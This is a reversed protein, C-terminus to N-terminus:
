GAAGVLEPEPVTGADAPSGTAAADPEPDTAAEPVRRGTLRGWLRRLLGPRRPAAEPTAETVVAEPTAEDTPSDAPADASSEAPIDTPSDAPADAPSGAEDAGPAVWRRGTLWLWFRRLLGPRRPAAGETDATADGGAAPEATGAAAADRASTERAAADAAILAADLIPLSATDVLDVVSDDSGLGNPVYDDAAWDNEWRQDDLLYRFRWRAGPPLTIDARFSGDGQRLLPHAQPAWGNFDGCVTVRSAGVAAPLEFGVQVTGDDHRRKDM